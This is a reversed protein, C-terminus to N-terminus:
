YKADRDPLFSFVISSLKSGSGPFGPFDILLVRHGTELVGALSDMMTGTCGWGHLLVVPEGAEGRIQYWARTGKIDAFM